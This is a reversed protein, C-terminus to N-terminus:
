DFRYITRILNCKTHMVPERICTDSTYFGQLLYSATLNDRENGDTGAYLIEVAEVSVCVRPAHNCLRCRAFVVLSQEVKSPHSPNLNQKLYLISQLAELSGSLTLATATEEPLSSCHPTVARPPPPIQHHSTRNPPNTKPVPTLVEPTGEPRTPVPINPGTKVNRIGHVYKYVTILGPKGRSAQQLTPWNFSELM